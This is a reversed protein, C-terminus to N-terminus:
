LINPWKEVNHFIWGKCQFYIKLFILCKTAFRCEKHNTWKTSRVRNERVNAESLDTKYPFTVSITTSEVLFRCELKEFFTKTKWFKKKSTLVNFVNLIELSQWMFIHWDQLLPFFIGIKYCLAIKFIELVM